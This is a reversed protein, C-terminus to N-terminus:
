YIAKFGVCWVPRFLGPIGHTARAKEKVCLGIEEWLVKEFFPKKGDNGRDEKGCFSSEIKSQIGLSQRPNSIIFYVKTAKHPRQEATPGSRKM